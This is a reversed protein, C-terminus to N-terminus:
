EKTHQRRGYQTRVSREAVDWFEKNETIYNPAYIALVTLIKSNHWTYQLLLARGKVVEYMKMNKINTKRRNVVFAVGGKGTPNEPGSSNFIEISNGHLHKLIGIHDESLHTEQLAMLGINEKVIDSKLASWKNNALRTLAGRDKMNLSAINLHAATAKKIPKTQVKRHSFHPLDPQQSSLQSLSNNPSNHLAQAQTSIQASSGDAPFTDGSSTNLSLM